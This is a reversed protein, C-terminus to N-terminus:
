PLTSGPLETVTWQGAELVNLALEDGGAADWLRLLGRNVESAVRELDAIGHLIRHQAQVAMHADFRADADEDVSLMEDVGFGPKPVLLDSRAELLQRVSAWPEQAFDVFVGIGAGILELQRVLPKRFVPARGHYWAEPLAKPGVTACFAEVAMATLVLSGTMLHLRLSGDERAMRRLSRAAHNLEPWPRYEASGSVRVNRKSNM